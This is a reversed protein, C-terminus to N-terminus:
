GLPIFYKMQIFVCFLNNRGEPVDNDRNAIMRGLYLGKPVIILTKISIHFLTSM